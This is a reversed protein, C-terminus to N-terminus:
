GDKTEALKACSMRATLYGSRWQAQNAVRACLQAAAANFAPTHKPLNQRKSNKGFQRFATSETQAVIACIEETQHWFQM